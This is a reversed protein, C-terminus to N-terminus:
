CKEPTHACIDAPPGVIIFISVEKSSDLRNRFKRAYHGAARAAELDRESIPDDISEWDGFAFPINNMREAFVKQEASTEHKAWRETKIGEFVASGVILALVVAIPAILRTM